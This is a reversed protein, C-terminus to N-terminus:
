GLRLRRITAPKGETGLRECIGDVDIKTEHLIRLSSAM